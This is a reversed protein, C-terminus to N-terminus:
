GHRQGQESSDYLSLERCHMKGVVRPKLNVLYDKLPQSPCYVWDAYSDAWGPLCGEFWDTVVTYCGIEPSLKKIEKFLRSAYSHVSIIKGPKYSEVIYRAYKRYIEEEIVYKNDEAEFMLDHMVTYLGVNQKTLHNYIQTTKRYTYLESDLILIESIENSVGDLKDKIADAVANHGGGTSCTLILTEAACEKEPLPEYAAMTLFSVMLYRLALRSDFDECTDMLAGGKGGIDFRPRDMALEFWSRNTGQVKEKLLPSLRDMNPLPSTKSYEDFSKIWDHYPLKTLKLGFDRLLEMLRDFTVPRPHSVHVIRGEADHSRELITDAIYDLRTFDAIANPFDPAADMDIIALMILALTDGMNLRCFRDLSPAIGSARYRTVAMGADAARQMLEEGVWKSQAYGYGLGPDDVGLPREGIVQRHDFLDSDIIATSSMYECKKPKKHGCFEIVHKVGLVNSDRLERYPLLFSVKAGMHFVRDIKKALQDYEDAELGFEPRSFDGTIIVLRSEKARVPRDLHYKSLNAYLKTLAEEKDGTSRILCHITADTKELLRFLLYSGVYGTAGTLLIHNWGFPAHRGKEIVDMNLHLPMDRDALYATDSISDMHGTRKYIDIKHALQRITANQLLIQYDMSLGLQSEILLVMNVLEMSTVGMEFFDTEVCLEEQNLLSQCISELSKETQTVPPVRKGSFLTKRTTRKVATSLACSDGYRLWIDSPTVGSNRSDEHKGLREMGEKPTSVDSKLTEESLAKAQCVWMFGKGHDLRHAGTLNSFCQFVPRNKPTPEYILNVTTNGRALAVDGVAKLMRHEVGRGLVRCSLIMSDLVTTGDVHELILVGVLGYDGFRDKVRVTLVELDGRQWLSEVEPEMRRITTSNFQNTRLTLQSVRPIDSPDMKEIRVDMHLQALFDEFSSVSEKLARRQTEERYMRTRNKDEKTAHGKDFFWTHRVFRVIDDPKQPFLLCAVEPCHLRVAEIEVPNDDIFVFSDLGLNLEEALARINAPKPDWNVKMAVLHDEKLPFDASRKAFVERVDKAENKSCLAILAGAEQRAILTKMFEQRASDFTIGGVGDEGVIGKWLTNDCDVVFVKKPPMWYKHATRIVASALSMFYPIRYPMHAANDMGEDDLGSVPYWAQIDADTLITVNSYAALNEELKREQRAELEQYRVQARLGPSASTILLVHPLETEKLCATLLSRFQSVTKSLHIECSTWDVSALKEPENPNGRKLCPELWDEFRLAIVNLGSATTRFLSDHNGLEQFVQNFDALQVAAHWGLDRIWQDLGPKIPDITYTSVVNIKKRKECGTIEFLHEPTDDPQQMLRMMIKEWTEGFKRLAQPDFLHALYEMQVRYQDADRFLTFFIDFDLAERKLHVFAVETDFFRHGAAQRTDVYSFATQVPPINHDPQERRIINILDNYPLRKSLIDKIREQVRHCINKLPEQSSLELPLAALNAYFGIAKQFEPLDRNSDPMAVCQRAQESFLYQTLMLGTMFVTFHTFRQRGCFTNLKHAFEGRFVHELLAVDDNQLGRRYNYKFPLRTEEGHGVLEREWFLRRAKGEPGELRMREWTSFDVHQLDLPEPDPRKGNGFANYIQILEKSLLTVSIADAVIHLILILLYAGQNQQYVMIKGLPGTELDFKEKQVESIRALVWAEDRHQADIVDIKLPLTEKIVLVPRDHVMRFVTRLSEHRLVLQDVAQQLHDLNLRGTVRLLLPVMLATQSGTLKMLALHRSQELSPQFFRQKRDLRVPGHTDPVSIHESLIHAALEDVTTHDFLVTTALDISLQQNIRNILEVAMISDLGLESLPEDPPVKQVPMGLVAATENQIREHINTATQGPISIKNSEPVAKAHDEKKPQATGLPPSIARRQAIYGHSEAVIIQQGMEHAEKAPYVVPAFGQEWLATKWQDESLAPSGKLRIEEDEFLWWGDLLGFTVTLFM